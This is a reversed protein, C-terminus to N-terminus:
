KPTKLAQFQAQQNETHGPDQDFLRSESVKGTGEKNLTENLAM